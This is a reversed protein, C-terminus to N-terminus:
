SYEFVNSVITKMELSTTTKKLITNLTTHEIVHVKIYIKVLQM